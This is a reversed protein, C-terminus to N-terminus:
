RADAEATRQDAPKQRGELRDVLLQIRWMLDRDGLPDLKADAVSQGRVEFLVIALCAAEYVIEAGAKQLVGPGAALRRASAVGDADLRGLLWGKLTDLDAADPLQKLHGEVAARAVATRALLAPGKETALISAAHPAMEALRRAWERWAEASRMVTWGREADGAVEEVLRLECMGKTGLRHQVISVAVNAYAADGERGASGIAVHEFLGAVTSPRVFGFDSGSRWTADFGHAQLLEQVIGQDLRVAEGGL